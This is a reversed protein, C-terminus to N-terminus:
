PAAVPTSRTTGAAMAPRGGRVPQALQVSALLCLVAAAGACVALVPVPLASWARQAAPGGAWFHDGALNLSLAQTLIVAPPLVAVLRGGVAAGVVAAVGVLSPFLYRGQAGLVVHLRHYSSLGALVVMVVLLLFPTLVLVAERRRPSRSLGVLVLLAVGIWIPLVVQFPAPTELWGLDLWSTKLLSGTFVEAAERAPLRLGLMSEVREPYGSPQVAGDHLLRWPYWWGGLLSLGLATAAVRRAGARRRGLVLAAVLVVPLLLAFAKTLLAAAVLLGAAAAVRPRRDGRALLVLLPTVAAFELLLLDGDTVSAGIHLLQPVGVPLFAAAARGSGTAGLLGATRAALAPLPLLLLGQLLRLLVVALDVPLLDLRLLRIEAAALLPWGPPHQTMQDIQGVQDPPVPAARLSLLSPLRGPASAQIKVTPVYTRADGGPFGVLPYSAAVEPLLRASGPPPYGDGHALRLATSLHQPEDVARYVPVAVSWLVVLLGM